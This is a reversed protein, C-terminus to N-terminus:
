VHLSLLNNEFEFSEVSNKYYIEKGTFNINPISYILEVKVDYENSLHQCFYCPPFSVTSFKMTIMLDNFNIKTNEHSVDWMTGFRKLNSENPNRGVMTEFIIERAPNTITGLRKLITKINVEDGTITISNNCWNTM